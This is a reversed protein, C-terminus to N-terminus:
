IMLGVILFRVIEGEMYNGMVHAKVSLFALTIGLLGFAGSTTPHNLNKTSSIKISM